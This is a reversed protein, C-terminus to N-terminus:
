LMDKLIEEDSLGEYDNPYFTNALADSKDPSRKIRKKIDEKPEIIISGNSQFKWHTATAEEMFDDDPPTKLAKALDIGTDTVEILIKEGKQLRVSYSILSKAFQEYRKDM